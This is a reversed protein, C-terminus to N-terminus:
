LRQRATEGAGDGKYRSKRTNFKYTVSVEFKRKNYIKEMFLEQRDSYITYHSHRSTNLIDNASVQITWNRNIRKSASLDIQWTEGMEINDSDANSRWQFGATFIFSKSFQLISKFNVLLMPKDLCRTNDRYAIKYDQGMIGASLAPYFFKGIFGPMVSALFQYSNLDHPSNIKNLVVIEPNDKHISAYNIIQDTIKSWSANVILWRWSYNLNLENSYSPRLYPNGSEYLYRNIYNVTANLQSYLPQRYKRSYGAQFTSSGVPLSIHLSPLWEDYGRSQDTKKISNEYYRSATHEYRLGLLIGAKGIKCSYQGYFGINYERIKTSTADMLDGSGSMNDHRSSSIYETGIYVKGNRVPRTVNLKAAFLSSSNKEHTIVDGAIAGPTEETAAQDESGNKKIFSIAADATLSGWKGSYYGDALHQSSRLGTHQHTMSSSLIADDLRRDSVYISNVHSPKVYGHYYAGFSHGSPTLYNFGLKGEFGESRGHSETNIDTSYLSQAWLNQINHSKGKSHNNDYELTSFIDIGGKRYNLDLQQRGQVYDVVGVTTKSDLSFGEGAVRMTSIEIVARTNGKFRAGPNNIIKIDKIQSSKLQNLENQNRMQRGNIYVVPRGKGIVEIVGDNAWVGPIFGLVDRATGLKQLVTGSIKVVMGDDEFKTIPRSAKVIIERLRVTDKALSNSKNDQAQLPLPFLVCVAAFHILFTRM